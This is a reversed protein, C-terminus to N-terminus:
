KAGLSACPSFSAAAWPGRRAGASAPSANRRATRGSIWARGSAAPLTATHTVPPQELPAAPRLRAPDHLQEPLLRDAADQEDPGGHQSQDGGVEAVGVGVDAVGHDPRGGQMEVERQAGPGRVAEQRDEEEHDAQLQLTLEDGAVQAVRAARGHRDDGSDAAHSHRSDDVDAHVEAHVVPATRPQAMGVAVSM